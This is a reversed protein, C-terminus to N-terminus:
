DLTLLCVHSPPLPANGRHLGVRRSHEDYEDDGTGGCERRRLGGGFAEARSLAAATPATGIQWRLGPGPGSGSASAASPQLGEGQRPPPRVNQRRSFPLLTPTKKNKRATLPASADVYGDFGIFM